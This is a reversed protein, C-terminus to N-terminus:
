RVRATRRARAMALGGLGVAVVGIVVAIYGGVIGYGTGPGGDAAAVVLGGVVTGVLGAVMAGMAARRGTRGTFRTLALGGAVVGALGLVAAVLSWFRGATLGYSDAVAPAYSAAATPLHLVFM